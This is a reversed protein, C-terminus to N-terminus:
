KKRRDNKIVEKKIERNTISEFDDPNKSSAANMEAELLQKKKNDKM